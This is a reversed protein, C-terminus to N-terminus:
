STFEEAEGWRENIANLEAILAHYTQQEMAAEMIKICRLENAACGGEVMDQVQLELADLDAEKIEPHICRNESEPELVITRMIQAFHDQIERQKTQMTEKQASYVRQLRGDMIHQPQQTQLPHQQQTQEEMIRARINAIRVYFHALKSAQIKCNTKHNPKTQSKDKDKGNANDIHSYFLSSLNQLESRTLTADPNFGHKLRLHIHIPNCSRRMLADVVIDQIDTQSSENLPCELTLLPKSIEREFERLEVPHGQLIDSFVHSLKHM